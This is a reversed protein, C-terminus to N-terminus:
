NYVRNRRGVTWGIQEGKLTEALQRRRTFMECSFDCADLRMTVLLPCARLLAALPTDASDRLNNHAVDLEELKRLAGAGQQACSSLLLFLLLSVFTLVRSNKSKYWNQVLITCWIVLILGIVETLWREERTPRSLNWTSHLSLKEKHM